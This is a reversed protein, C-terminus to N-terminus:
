KRWATMIALHKESEFQVVVCITQTHVQYRWRSGYCEGGHPWGGRLVNLCDVQSLEDNAMEEQAHRWFEMEGVEIIHRILKRAQTPTLPKNM